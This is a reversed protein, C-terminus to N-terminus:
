DLGGEGDASNFDNIVMTAANRWTRNWIRREGFVCEYPVGWKLLIIGQRFSDNDALSIM